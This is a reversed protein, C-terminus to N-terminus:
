EKQFYPSQKFAQDIGDLGDQLNSSKSDSLVGYSLGTWLVSLKPRLPRTGADDRDGAVGADSDPEPANKLDVADVILTGTNYSYSYYYPYYYYYYPYGWYSGWYNVYASTVTGSLVSLNMGIDPKDGPDVQKYGRSKMNTVVREVLQEAAADALAEQEIDGYDEKFVIVEPDVAFTTYDNFDAHQDYRSYIIEESYRKDADPFSVCGAAAVALLL